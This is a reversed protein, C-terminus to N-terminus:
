DDFAEMASVLENWEPVGFDDESYFEGGSVAKAARLARSIAPWDSVIRDEFVIMENEDAFVQWDLASKHLRDLAKLSITM